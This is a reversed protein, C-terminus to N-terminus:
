ICHMCQSCMFQVFLYGVAIVSVICVYCHMCRAKATKLCCEVLTTMQEAASVLNQFFSGPLVDFRPRVQVSWHRLAAVM